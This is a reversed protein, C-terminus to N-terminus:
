RDKTYKYLQEVLVVILPPVNEDSQFCAGCENVILGGGNRGLGEARLCDSFRGETKVSRATQVNWILPIM